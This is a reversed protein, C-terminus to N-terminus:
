LADQALDGVRYVCITRGVRAYPKLRLLSRRLESSLFSHDGAIQICVENEYGLIVNASVALYATAGGPHSTACAALPKLGYPEGEGLGYVCVVTSGERSHQSVWSGLRALDQGWDLSDGVLAPRGSWQKWAWGFENQWSLHGDLGALANLLLWGLPGITRFPVFTPVVDWSRGAWVCLLALSPLLYRFAANTGTGTTAAITLAIQAAPVLLCLTGWLLRDGDQAPGPLRFLSLIMLFLVPLPIVILSAGLYWYWWGGLRSRGLLYAPEMHETEAMQFDLGRFFELPLPLPVRLIWATARWRDLHHLDRALTSRTSDWQSLRFGVEKFLYLADVVLLSVVLILIGSVLCRFPSARRALPDDPKAGHLQFVRAALLLFWCPYLVLLTFKTAAALGLAFGAPLATGPRPNILFTWYTRAAALVMVASLMDSTVLSGHALVLPMWCWLCLSTIGPWVGFLRTSFECVLCGGLITVLLPLLRSWRYITHYYGVHQDQFKQGVSWEQRSTSARDYEAPYEFRVGALHAPLAYLLKSAPGCVRYIGLSHRQWYALGAPLHAFEVVTVSNGWAGPLMMAVSIALVAVRVWM